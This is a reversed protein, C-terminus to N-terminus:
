TVVRRAGKKIMLQIRVVLFLSILVLALAIGGWVMRADAFMKVGFIYGLPLGVCWYGIINAVSPVRTDGAGRLVGFAAVQVGDFLQFGAAIPFLTLVTVLVKPDDTFLSAIPRGLGILCAASIIMWFIAFGLSLWATHHWPKQAGVLHGVRTAAAAGIGLPIMFSTSIVTMAVAHAALQVDGLMGMMLGLASFAWVELGSQLGVPVSDSLVKKFRSWDFVMSWTEPWYRKWTSWGIWLLLLCSIWRVSSTAIGCGLTGLAPLGIREVGFVLTINLLVNFINAILMVVMPARMKGLGQLFQTMASIILTPVMGVVLANCYAQTGELVAEPQGFFALIPAALLHVASIPIALVIALVLARGFMESAVQENKAGHAQAFFPDMGRMTGLGLILVAFSFLHGLSVAAIAQRNVQGMVIIDTVGMFTIGLQGLVVPWALHALRRAEQKISTSM